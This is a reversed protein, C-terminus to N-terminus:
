LEIKGRRNRGRKKFKEGYRTENKKAFYSKPVGGKPINPYLLFPKVEINLQIDSVLRQQVRELRSKGLYCWPCIFDSIFEIHVTKM